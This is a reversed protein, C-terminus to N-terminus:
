GHHSLNSCQMDLILTTWRHDESGLGEGTLPNFYERFGSQRILDASHDALTQALAHYGYRRLGSWLLWILPPWVNGRWYRVPAFAPHSISVNSLAYPTTKIAHAVSNAIHQAQTQNACGGFLALWLAPQDIFQASEVKALGQQITTQLQNAEQQWHAMDDDRGLASAIRGLAELDACRIANFDIPALCFSGASRLAAADCQYHRLTNVLQIRAQRLGNDHPNQYYAQNSLLNSTSLPKGSSATNSGILNEDFGMAMDWDPTADQGSEWPHILWVMGDNDLERRHTFWTHYAVLRPYLQQLAALNPSKEHVLWAATAILPPQTILSRHEDGWMAAGRGDWYNMHPIMGADPGASIQQAVVSHLEDWACAPDLWRWVIAHFCSDWLWQQEYIMPAPRTYRLGNGLVIQNRKLVLHCPMQWQSLLPTTM